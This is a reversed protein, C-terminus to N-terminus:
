ENLTDSNVSRCHYIPYISHSMCCHLVRSACFWAPWVWDTTSKHRRSISTMQWSSSRYHIINEHDITPLETRFRIWLPTRNSFTFIMSQFSLHCCYVCHDCPLIRYVSISRSFSLLLGIQHSSPNNDNACDDNVTPTPPRWIYSVMLHSHMCAPQAGM